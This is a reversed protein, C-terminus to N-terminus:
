FLIYYGHLLLFLPFFNPFHGRYVRLLNSIRYISLNNYCCYREFRVGLKWMLYYCAILKLTRVQNAHVRFRFLLEASRPSYHFVARFVLFLAHFDVFFRMQILVLPLANAHIDDLSCSRNM